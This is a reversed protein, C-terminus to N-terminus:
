APLQHPETVPARCVFNECLYVAPRGDVTTRDALLPVSEAPGFAVVSNPQWPELAARAIADTPSGIIALERPPSFHLDLACLAWGFAAPARRFGNVLLRFVDVARRELEDDAFLEVARSALAHARELYELEGTAVHLEYLGHAVNAYDDLFAPVGVPTRTLPQRDLFAALTRAADLLDPRELRWGGEALAALALGNWSTIAKDDLAPQPREARIALLRARLEPEVEGRLVSRGHEFPQLLEAPVGDDETWTYTLGEVGNTDADQSSAFGGSPLRLERV